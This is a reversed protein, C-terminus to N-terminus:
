SSLQKTVVGSIYNRTKANALLCAVISICSAIYVAIKVLIDAFLEEQVLLSTTTLSAISVALLASLPLLSIQMDYHKRAALHVVLFQFGNALMLAQAAGVFGMSPILAFYFVTAIAATCYSNWTMWGTKEKVLFSFNGFYVLCQFVASFVLYPVAQAAAHFEPAAMIRIVPGGFIAVGLAAVVLSASIFRFVAQYVPIPNPERYLRFRETQWYQSFPMWVLLTIITGFKAALEFLGVDDLTSFLRIYYRNASGVYLGALGSLWLPWSFLLMRKAIHTNFRIGTNLLTYLTMGVTFIVSSIVSGYAVGLVGWELVVVFWVNLSLQMVLKAMSAGIFLWPRQQIRVYGLSYSELSHTLILVAFIGVLLGYDGTGFAVESIPARFAVVALMSLSSVASTIMLATSIVADGERKSKQEFFFKPVAQFLRAGFILEILAVIFMLLGVAGYDAPSLYRTYIPLMVFGVVQRSINGIAYISSHKIMRIAQSM